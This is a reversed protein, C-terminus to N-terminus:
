SQAQSMLASEDSIKDLLRALEEAVRKSTEPSMLKLFCNFRIVGYKGTDCPTGRTSSTRTILPIM